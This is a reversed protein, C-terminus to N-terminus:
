PFSTNYLIYLGIVFLAPICYKGITSGSQIHSFHWIKSERGIKVNDDVYSSEHVFYSDKM